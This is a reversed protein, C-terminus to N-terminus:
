KGAKDLVQTTGGSGCFTKIDIGQARESTSGIAFVAEVKLVTATTIDVLISWGDYFGNANPAATPLQIYLYPPLVKPDHYWSAALMMHPRSAKLFLVSLCEPFELRKGGVELVVPEASIKAPLYLHAPEYNAPLGLLRGDPAFTIIKDKHGFAVSAQTVLGVLLATQRFTGRICPRRLVTSLNQMELSRRREHGDFVPSLRRGLPKPFRARVDPEDGQEGAGEYRYSSRREHSGGDAM